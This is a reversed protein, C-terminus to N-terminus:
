FYHKYEEKKKVAEEEEPTFDRNINFMKKLEEHSKGTIMRGVLYFRSNHVQRVTFIYKDEVHSGISAQHGYFQRCHGSRLTREYGTKQLVRQGM